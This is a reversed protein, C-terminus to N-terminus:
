PASPRRPTPLPWSSITFLFSNSATVFATATRSPRQRSLTSRSARAGSANLPLSCHICPHGRRHSDCLPAHLTRKSPLRRPSPVRSCAAQETSPARARTENV